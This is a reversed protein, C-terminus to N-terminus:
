LSAIPGLTAQLFITCLLMQIGWSGDPVCGNYFVRPCTVRVGLLPTSHLFRRFSKNQVDCSSGLPIICRICFLWNCSSWVPVVDSWILALFVCIRMAQSPSYVCKSIRYPIKLCSPFIGRPMGARELFFSIIEEAYCHRIMRRTPPDYTRLFNQWYPNGYPGLVGPLKVIFYQRFHRIHVIHFNM